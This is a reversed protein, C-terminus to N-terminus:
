AAGVLRARAYKLADTADTLRQSVDVLQGGLHQVVSCFGKPYEQAYSALSAPSWMLGRRFYQIGDDVYGAEELGRCSLRLVSLKSDPFMKCATAIIRLDPRDIIGLGKPSVSALVEVLPPDALCWGVVEEELQERQQLLDIAAEDFWPDLWLNSAVRARYVNPATANM